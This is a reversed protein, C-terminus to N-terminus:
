CRPCEGTGRLAARQIVRVASLVPLGLVLVQRQIPAHTLDHSYGGQKVDVMVTYIGAMRLFFAITGEGVSKGACLYLVFKVGDPVELKATQPPLDISSDLARVAAEYKDGFQLDSDIDLTTSGRSAAATSM